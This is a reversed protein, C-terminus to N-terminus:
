NVWRHASGFHGSRIFLDCLYNLYKALMDVSYKYGIYGFGRGWFEGNRRGSNHIIGSVFILFRMSVGRTAETRRGVQTCFSSILYLPEPTRSTRTVKLASVLGGNWPSTLLAFILPFDHKSQGLCRDGYFYKNWITNGV